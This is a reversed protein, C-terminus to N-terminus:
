QIDDLLRRRNIKLVELAFSGSPHSLEPVKSLVHNEDDTTVAALRGLWYLRAEKSIMALGQHALTVLSVPRQGPHCEFRHATGRRAWLQVGGWEGLLRQRRESDLLNYGLCGAQDYSGCLRRPEDVGLPPGPILVSWNEDHRDRNAIWADLVLYGAFVDFATFDEPCWAGPPCLAGDLAMKINALSHGPRGKVGDAGPRYDPVVECLVVAGSQMEHYRPRLNRSICGRTGARTALEIEACPVTLFKALHCAVKEGWDEGHVHGEKVTPPKYLWRDDTEPHRLWVKEDQGGPEEAVAEWTTVDIVPYEDGSM